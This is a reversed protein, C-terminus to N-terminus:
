EMGIIEVKRCGKTQSLLEVLESASKEVYKTDVTVTLTAVDMVPINQNITLINCKLLAFVSIIESLIGPTHNLLLFFTIIKGRDLESYEFVNDKYKYYTSRSLNVMECAKNINPADGSSLLRKALSVKEFIEPLIDANIILLKKDSM